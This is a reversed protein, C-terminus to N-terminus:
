EKTKQLSLIKTWTPYNQSSSLASFQHSRVGLYMYVSIHVQSRAFFYLYVSSYTLAISRRCQFIRLFRQLREQLQWTQPQCPRRRRLIVWKVVLRHGSLRKSSGLHKSRQVNLGDSVSGGAIQRERLQGFKGSSM